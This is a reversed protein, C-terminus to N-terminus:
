KQPLVMSIRFFGDTIEVTKASETTSGTVFFKGEAWNADVKTIEMGGKYGGWYNLEGNEYTSLDVANNHGFITKEGVVMNRRDYPFGFGEGNNDGVIRGAAEPPMISTATWDKGNIKATMTWGGETTPIAGPRMASIEKQLQKADSVAKDQKTGCSLLISTSFLLTPIIKKMSFINKFKIKVPVKLLLLMEGSALM